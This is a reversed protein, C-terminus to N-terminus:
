KKSRKTSKTPDTKTYFIVVMDANVQAYFYAYVKSSQFYTLPYAVGGGQEFARFDIIKEIDGKDALIEIQTNAVFNFSGSIVKCYIEKGDVWKQHTDTETTSYDWSSGPTPTDGGGLELAHVREEIDYIDYSRRKTNM